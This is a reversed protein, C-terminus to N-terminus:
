LIRIYSLLTISDSVNYQKTFHQFQKRDLNLKDLKWIVAPILTEGNLLTINLDGLRHEIYEVVNNKKQEGLNKYNDDSLLSRIYDIAADEPTRTIKQIKKGDTKSKQDVKSFQLDRFGPRFDMEEDYIEEIIEIRDEDEEDMSGRPMIFDDEDGDSVEGLDDVYLGEDDAYEYLGEQWDEDM